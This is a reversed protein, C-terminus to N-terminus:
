AAGSGEDDNAFTVRVARFCIFCFFLWGSLDCCRSCFEDENSLMLIVLRGAFRLLTPRAESGPFDPFNGTSVCVLV